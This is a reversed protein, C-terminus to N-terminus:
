SADGKPTVHVYHVASYRTDKRQHRKRGRWFCLGAALTVTLACVGVIALMLKNNVSEEFRLLLRQSLPCSMESPKLDGIYRGALNPPGNCRLYQTANCRRMWLVQCDCMWPNGDLSLLGADCLGSYVYDLSQLSNNNLILKIAPSKVWHLAADSIEKLRANNSMNVVTLRKMHWLSGKDVSELRPMQSLHLEELNRTGSLSTRSLNLIPNQDMILFRLNRASDLGKPVDAFDNESLDITHVRSALVFADAALSYADISRLEVLELVDLNKFWSSDVFKLPNGSLKLTRLNPVRHFAHRELKRLENWSLDLETLSELGDLDDASLSVLCNHSFDLTRLVTAHSFTGRSITKVHNHCFTVRTLWAVGLTPVVEISNFSVDLERTSRPLPGPFSPLQRHSCQVVTFNDRCHCDHPCIPTLETGGYASTCFVICVLLATKM